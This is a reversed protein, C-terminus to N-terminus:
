RCPAPTCRMAGVSAQSAATTASRHVDAGHLYVATIGDALLTAQAVVLAALAVGLVVSLALYTRTARAYRLLRPDLPKM